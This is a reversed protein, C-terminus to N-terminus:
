LVNSTQEKIKELEDKMNIVMRQIVVDNAKSGITNIERGIEQCLFNLKKGNGEKLVEKFYVLHTGLRVKEESIDYKEIYYILEQEFRNKDFDDAELLDTVSRRLRERVAPIRLKDQAEVEKLLEGIKDIYEIFKNTVIDGERLRFKTCESIAQNVASLIIKWEEEAQEESVTETNYANPLSLAIKFLETTDDIGYGSGTDQLDKMYAEVLPRNISTGSSAVNTYNTSLNLEIKGRELNQTLLNRIEIERFSLSKPIRCYIDTFKSNLTKIEATVTLHPAEIVSKGFGTMSKLM